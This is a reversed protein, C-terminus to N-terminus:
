NNLINESDESESIAKNKMSENIIDDIKDQFNQFIKNENIIKRKSNFESGFMKKKKKILEDSLKLLTSKRNGQSINSYGRHFLDIPVISLAANTEQTQIKEKKQSLTTLDKKEDIEIIPPIIKITNTQNEKQSKCICFSDIIKSFM